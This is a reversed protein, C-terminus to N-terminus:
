WGITIRTILIYRVKMSFVSSGDAGQALRSVESGSSRRIAASVNVASVLAALSKLAFPLADHVRGDQVVDTSRIQM